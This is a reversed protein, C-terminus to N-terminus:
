MLPNDQQHAQRPWEERQCLQTIAASVGDCQVVRQAAMGPDLCIGNQLDAVIFPKQAAASVGGPPRRLNTSPDSKVIAREQTYYDIYM